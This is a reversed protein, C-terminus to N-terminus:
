ENHTTQARGSLIKSVDLGKEFNARAAIVFLEQAWNEIASKPFTEIIGICYNFVILPIGHKFANEWSVTSRLEKKTDTGHRVVDFGHQKKLNKEESKFLYFENCETKGQEALFYFKSERRERRSPASNMTTIVELFINLLSKHHYAFFTIKALQLIVM